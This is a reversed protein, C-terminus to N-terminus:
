YTMLLVHKHFSIELFLHSSYFLLSLLLGLPYNKMKNLCNLKLLSCIYKMNFLSNEIKKKTVYSSLVSCIINGTFEHGKLVAWTGEAKSTWVLM